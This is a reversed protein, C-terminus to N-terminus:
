PANKAESGFDVLGLVEVHRRTAYSYVGVIANLSRGQSQQRKLSLGNERDRRREM